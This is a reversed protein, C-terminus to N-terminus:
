SESGTQAALDPEHDVLRDLLVLCVAVTQVAVLLPEQEPLATLVIQEAM